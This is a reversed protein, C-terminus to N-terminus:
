NWKDMNPSADEGIMAAAMQWTIYGMTTPEALYAEKIAAVIARKEEQTEPKKFNLNELNM